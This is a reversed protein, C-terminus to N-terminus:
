AWWVQVAGRLAAVTDSEGVPLALAVRAGRPALRSTALL